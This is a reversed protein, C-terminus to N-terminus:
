DIVISIGVILFIFESLILLPGVYLYRQWQSCISKVQILVEFIIVLLCQELSRIFYYTIHERELVGKISHWALGTSVCLDQAPLKAVSNNVCKQM